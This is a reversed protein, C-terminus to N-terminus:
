VLLEYLLSSIVAPVAYPLFIALRSFKRARARPTDLLLAFLLALGLMTPVVIVGYAAVRLVSSAFDPDTLAKSYNSLGAWTYDPLLGKWNTLSVRLTWAIFGYVFILLAVLSPSILLFALWREKAIRM